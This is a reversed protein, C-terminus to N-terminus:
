VVSKRDGDPLRDVTRGGRLEPPVDEERQCVLAHFHAYSEGFTMLYVAPAGTAEKVAAVLDRARPGFAATEEDTLGTILEHHRRVRLFFWGPVDYGPVSEAAFLADAFVRSDEDAEELSCILCGEVREDTIPETTTQDVPM